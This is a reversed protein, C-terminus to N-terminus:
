GAIREAVLALRDDPQVVAVRVHGRGAPGYLDGPSVLAGGRKALEATLGWADGDPAPAWLYFAGAPLECKVGLAGLVSAMLELRRRYRERQQDVHQDDDFAVVAAAQVPGPVM